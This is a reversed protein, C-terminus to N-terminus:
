TFYQRVIMYAGGAGKAGDPGVVDSWNGHQLNRETEPYFVADLRSKSVIQDYSLDKLAFPNSVPVDLSSVTPIFAVDSHVICVDAHNPTCPHANAVKKEIQSLINSPMKNGLEGYHSGPGSAWAAAKDSNKLKIRGKPLKKVWNDVNHNTDLIINNEGPVVWIRLYGFYDCRLWSKKYTLDLVSRGKATNKVGRSGTAVGINFSPGYWRDKPEYKALYNMLKVREPHPKASISWNVPKRLKRGIGLPKPIPSPDNRKSQLRYLRDFAANLDAIPDKSEVLTGELSKEPILYYLLLQQASKSLLSDELEKKEADSLYGAGGAWNLFYQHGLSLVAGRHPSDHTIVCKITDAPILDKEKNRALLTQAVVGGKSNGFVCFAADQGSSDYMEKMKGLAVDARKFVDDKVGYFPNVWHEKNFITDKFAEAVFANNASVDGGGYGSLTVLINTTM